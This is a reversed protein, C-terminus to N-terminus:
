LFSVMFLQTMSETHSVICYTRLAVSWSYNSWQMNCSVWWSYHPSSRQGHITPYLLRIMYLPIVCNILFNSVRRVMFLLTCVWWSYHPSSRQGHITPYLLRIMYLPIVCNILFNSVRRVMFLLTCVWWSYHPSSRQGHITPYLSRIMCLQIM